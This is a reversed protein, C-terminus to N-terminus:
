KRRQFSTLFDNFKVVALIISIYMVVFRFVDSSDDISAIFFIPSFLVVVSLWGLVEKIKTPTDIRFFFDKYSESPYGLFRKLKEYDYFIIGCFKKYSTSIDQNSYISVRLDKYTKLFDPYILLYNNEIIKDVETIFQILQNQNMIEAHSNTILKHLPLYVNKLQQQKIEIKNPNMIQFKTILYTGVITIFTALIEILDSYSLSNDM